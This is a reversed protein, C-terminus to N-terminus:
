ARQRRKILIMIGVLMAAGPVAFVSLWFILGTQGATLPLPRVDATKPRVSILDQRGVLWDICNMFLNLNGAMNIYRNTVFDSDGIVVLRGQLPARGPEGFEQSRECAIGLSIPGRKDRKQDLQLTEGPQYAIAWGDGSTHMFNNTFVYSNAYTVAVRRSGPLVAALSGMGKGIPHDQKFHMVYLSTPDGASLHDQLDIVIDNDLRVNWAQLWADAGADVGPDILLMVGGGRDLVQAIAKLDEDSLSKQPGAIVMVSTDDPLTAPAGPTVVHNGVIWGGRRLEAALTAAGDTGQEGINREGHGSLFAVRGPAKRTLQIIAGTIEAEGVFQPADAVMRDGVRFIRERLLSVIPLRRIQAGVAVLVENAPESTLKFRNKIEDIAGPNRVPDITRVSLNRSRAAYEALLDTIEQRLDAPSNMAVTVEIPLSLRELVLRTQESLAYHKSSTLDLRLYHRSTVFALLAWIAIVLFSNAAVTLMIGMRRRGLEYRLRVRNLYLPAGALIAALAVMLWDGPTWLGHTFSSVVADCLIVLAALSLVISLRPRRWGSDAGAPLVGFKWRRSEVVRLTLYLLMGTTIIFYALARTDLLGRRFISFHEFMALYALAQGMWGNVSSAATGALWLALGGITAAMAALVQSATLSSALLGLALLMLALLQQGLYACLAPGWDPSGLAQLILLYALTPASLSLFALYGALFKGLVIQLDSVPHSTLVEFTGSRLEESFLRMTILPIVFATLVGLTSFTYRLTAEQTQSVSLWFVYGAVVLYLGVVILGTPSCITALFDRRAILRISRM